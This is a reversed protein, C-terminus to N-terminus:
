SHFGRTAQFFLLLRTMSILSASIAGRPLSCVQLVGSAEKARLAVVYCYDDTGPPGVLVMAKTTNHRRSMADRLFIALNTLM